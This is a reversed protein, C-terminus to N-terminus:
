RSRLGALSLPLTTTAFVAIGVCAGVVDIHFLVGLIEVEVSYLLTSTVGPNPEPYLLWPLWHTCVCDGLRLGFLLGILWINSSGYALCAVAIMMVPTLISVAVEGLQRPVPLRSIHALYIWLPHSAGLVEDLTHVITFLVSWVLLINPTSMILALELKM